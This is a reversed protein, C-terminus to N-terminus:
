MCTKLGVAPSVLAGVPGEVKWFKGSCKVVTIWRSSLNEVIDLSINSMLTFCRIQQSLCLLLSSFHLTDKIRTFLFLFPSAPHSLSRAARPLSSFSAEPVIQM